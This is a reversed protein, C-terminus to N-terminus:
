TLTQVVNAICSDLHSLGNELRRPYDFTCSPDGSAPDKYQSENPRNDSEQGAGAQHPM